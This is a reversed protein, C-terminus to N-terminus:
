VIDAFLPRLRKFVFVGLGLFFLVLLWFYLTDMPQKWLPEQYLLSDRYGNVIYYLPNVRFFVRFQAPISEASWFIPTFFFLVRM